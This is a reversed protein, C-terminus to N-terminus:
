TLKAILLGKGPQLAKMANLSCLRPDIANNVSAGEPFSLDTILYWKGPQHKKPIIGFRNIHVESKHVPFPGITNSLHTKKQLYENIVDPHLKSVAHEQQTYDRSKTWHPFREIGRLIYDAFVKDSSSPALCSTMTTNVKSLDPDTHTISRRDGHM